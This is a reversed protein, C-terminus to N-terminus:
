KHIKEDERGCKNCVSSLILKKHSIYSINPKEFQAYKKCNSCYMKRVRVQKFDIWFFFKDIAWFM